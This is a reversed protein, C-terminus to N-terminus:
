DIKYQFQVTVASVAIEGARAGGAPIYGFNVGIKKYNIGINPILMFQLMGSHMPTDNYGTAVGVMIGPTVTVDKIAFDINVNAASYGSVKHYSNHYLGAKFDVNKNITHTIGVGYNQSNFKFTTGQYNYTDQSHKSFGNIDIYTDACVNASFMIMVLIFYKTM